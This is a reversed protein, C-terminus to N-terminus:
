DSSPQNRGSEQHLQNSNSGETVKHWPKWAWSRHHVGFMNKTKNPDDSILMVMMIVQKPFTRLNLLHFQNRHLVKNHLDSAPFFVPKACCSPLLLLISLVQQMPQTYIKWNEWKKFTQTQLFETTQYDRRCTAVKIREGPTSRAFVSGSLNGSSSHINPKNIKRPWSKTSFSLNQNGIIKPLSSWRSLCPYM